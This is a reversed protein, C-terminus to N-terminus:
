KSQYAGNFQSSKEEVSQNEDITGKIQNMFEPKRSYDQNSVVRQVKTYAPVSNLSRMKPPLLFNKGTKIDPSDGSGQSVLAPKFPGSNIKTLHLSLKPAPTESEPQPSAQPEASKGPSENAEIAQFDRIEAGDVRKFHDNVAQQSRQFEDM